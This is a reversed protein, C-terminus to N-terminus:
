PRGRHSAGARGGGCAAAVLCSHVWSPLAVHPHTLSAPVLGPCLRLTVCGLTVPGPLATCLRGGGAGARDSQATSFDVKGHTQLLAPQTREPAWGGLAFSFTMACATAPTPGARSQRLGPARQRAVGAQLRNEKEKRTKVTADLGVVWATERPCNWLFACVGQTTLGGGVALSRETVVHTVGEAGGGEGARSM